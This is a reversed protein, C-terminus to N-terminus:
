DLIKGLNDKLREEGTFFHLIKATDRAVGTSHRQILKMPLLIKEAPLIPNEIRKVIKQAIIEGIRYGPFDLTTLKPYQYASNPTNEFGTISIDDPCSYGMNQIANIAGIALEDTICIVASTQPRWNLLQQIGEYGCQMTWGSSIVSSADWKIGKKDLAKKYAMTKAATNSSSIDGCLFGINRHGLEYLHDILLEIGQETDVNVVDVNSENVTREVAGVPIKVSIDELSIDKVCSTIFIVGQVLNKQLFSFGRMETSINENSNWILSDINHKELEELAGRAIETLSNSFINPMFIIVLKSDARYDRLQLSNCSFNLDKIAAHVKQCTENKVLSPNNLVRSVTSISVGAKIAIDKITINKKIDIIKGGRL